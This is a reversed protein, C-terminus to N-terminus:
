WAFGGDSSVGLLLYRPTDLKPNYDTYTATPQRREVWDPTAGDVRHLSRTVGSPLAPVLKLGGYMSHGKSIVAGPVLSTIVPRVEGMLAIKILTNSMPMAFMRAQWSGLAQFFTSLSLKVMSSAERRLRQSRGERVPSRTPDSVWTM